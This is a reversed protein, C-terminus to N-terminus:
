WHLLKGRASGRSWLQLGTVVVERMRSAKKSASGILKIVVRHFSKLNVDGTTETIRKNAPKLRPTPPPPPLLLFIASLRRVKVTIQIIESRCVCPFRQPLRQSFSYKCIIECSYKVRSQELNLWVRSAHDYLRFTKFWRQYQRLNSLVFSRGRDMRFYSITM